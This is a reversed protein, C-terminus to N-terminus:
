LMVQQNEMKPGSLMVWGCSRQALTKDFDVTDKLM